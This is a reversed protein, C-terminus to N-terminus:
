GSFNVTYTSTNNDAIEEGPIPGVTAELTLDTGAEPDPDIAIKTSDTDGPKIADITGDGSIENPGGSLTFTVPVNTADSDGQNQASVELEFPAGGGITNTTDPTLTTGNVQAEFLALGCVGKCANGGASVGALTTTLFSPDLWDLDPLFPTEPLKDPTSIDQTKLEEDIGERSRGYLVDSALFYRMYDAIAETAGAPNNGLATSIQDATGGIGDARLEYAQELEQQEDALEDPTDLGQVRGLLSEATSRDGSIEAKFSLPSLDGPEKLRGFFEESLQQSEDAIASLDQVYNEFGREKRANLCGRVGLVILIIIGVGIALAVLRRGLYPRPRGGGSRSPPLAPEDPELADDEDLFAL